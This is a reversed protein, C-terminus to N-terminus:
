FWFVRFALKVVPAAGSAQVAGVAAALDRHPLARMHRVLDQQPGLVPGFAPARTTTACGHLDGPELVSRIRQRPGARPGQRAPRARRRRTRTGPTPRPHRAAPGLSHTGTPQDFAGERLRGAGPHTLGPGLGGAGASAQANSGTSTRPSAPPPSGPTWGRAPPATRLLIQQSSSTDPEDRRRRPQQATRDPGPLTTRAPPPGPGPLPTSKVSALSGPTVIRPTGNGCRSDLPHEAVALPRIDPQRQALRELRQHGAQLARQPRQARHRRHKTVVVQRRRRVLQFAATPALQRRPKLLHQIVVPQARRPDRLM